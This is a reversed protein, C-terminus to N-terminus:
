TQERKRATIKACVKMSQVGPWQFYCQIAVSRQRPIESMYKQLECISDLERVQKQLRKSQDKFSKIKINQTHAICVDSNEIANFLLISM